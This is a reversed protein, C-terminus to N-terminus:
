KSGGVSVSFNRRVEQSKILKVAREAAANPDNVGNINMNITAGPKTAGNIIGGDSRSPVSYKIPSVKGGSGYPMVFEPGNEGVLYPKNMTMSGGFQRANFSPLLASSGVKMLSSLLSEKIGVTQAVKQIMQDKDLIAEIDEGGVAGAGLLYKLPNKSNKFIGPGMEFHLHTGTVNGTDGMEGIHQGKKVNDKVDVLIKDLHAYLSVLDKSHRVTLHKGYSGGHANKSEVVGDGVSLIDTGKKGSFDLGTHYGLSWLPGKKGYNGANSGSRTPMVFGGNAYFEVPDGENLQDFADVGFKKVSSAQIVYEGNSLRAPISDSTPTGPGSVFGGYAYKSEGSSGTQGYGAGTKAAPSETRKYALLGRASLGQVYTLADDPTKNPNQMLYNVMMMAVASRAGEDAFGTLWGTAAENGAISDIATKQKGLETIAQSQAASFAQREREIQALRNQHAEEYLDMEERKKDIQNELSEVEKNRREDIADIEQQFGYQAADSSMQQQAQIFGFVDGGALAQLGGLSTERRRAAFDEAKAEKQLADIYADAAKNTADIEKQKDKIFKEAAKQANEYRENEATVQNDFGVLGEQYKVQLNDIEKQLTDSQSQLDLKIELQIKAKESLTDLSRGIEDLEEQSLKGDEIFEDLNMGSLEAKLLIGQDTTNKLSKFSKYFPDDKQYKLTELVFKEMEDGAVQLQQPDFSEMTTFISDLAAIRSPLDPALISTNLAESFSSAIKGRQTNTMEGQTVEMDRYAYTGVPAQGNNQEVAAQYQERTVVTAPTGTPLIQGTAADRYVERLSEPGKETRAYEALSSSYIKFLQEFQQAPTEGDIGSIAGRFATFTSRQGAEAALLEVIAQAEEPSYGAMVMQSFKGLMVSQANESKKLIEILQKGSESALIDLKQEASLVDNTPLNSTGGFGLSAAQSKFQGLSETVNRVEVGFMEM